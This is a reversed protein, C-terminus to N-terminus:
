GVVDPIANPDSGQLLRQPVFEKERTYLYDHHKHPRYLYPSGWSVSLIRELRVKLVRSAETCQGQVIM